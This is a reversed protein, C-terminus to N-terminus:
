FIRRKKALHSAMRHAFARQYLHSLTIGLNRVAGFYASLGISCFRIFSSVIQEKTWNFPISEVRSFYERATAAKRQFEAGPVWAPVFRLWPFDDVLWQGPRFMESMVKFIDEVLKIFYDHDDKVSWGYAIKLTVAGVNRLIANVACLQTSFIACYRRTHSVFKEPSAALSRLFTRTEEAILPLYTQTARSNLGSQLHKRYIKFRPHFSSINPVSLQRGLLTIGM